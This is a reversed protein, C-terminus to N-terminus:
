FFNSVSAVESAGLARSFIAVKQILGNIPTATSSQTVPGGVYMNTGWTNETWATSGTTGEQSGNVYVAYSSPSNVCTASYVYSTNLQFNTTNDKNVSANQDVNPTFRFVTGSTLKSINREDATSTNDTAMIRRAVGDNAFSGGLPMFKIAITEQAATRNGAIAYKLVEANRTLAADTTPIFSTPYPSVEFQVGYIQLDIVDNEDVGAFYTKINVKDTSAPATATYSLKVWTSSNVLTVGGSSLLTGGSDRWNITMQQGTLGTFTGKYWFSLTVVNTPAVSANATNTSALLNNVTANTDGAVGVYQVRQANAGSISTLEPIAVQSKVSTGDLGTDSSTWGTWLGSGSATGDTRIILNTGAAEVMLGKASHFGTADYYGGAYRPQSDTALQIVGNSDIYTATDGTTRSFTATGDGKAYSSNLTSTDNEYDKYFTLGRPLGLEMGM